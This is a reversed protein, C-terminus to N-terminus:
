HWSKGCCTAKFQKLAQVTLPTKASCREGPCIVLWQSTQENSVIYVPQM